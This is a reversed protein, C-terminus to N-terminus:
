YLIANLFEVDKSGIGERTFPLMERLNSHMTRWLPRPIESKSTEAAIDPLNTM